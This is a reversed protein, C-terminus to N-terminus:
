EGGTKCSECIAGALFGAVFLAFAEPIRDPERFPALLGDNEEKVLWFADKINPWYRDVNLDFSFSTKSNSRAM